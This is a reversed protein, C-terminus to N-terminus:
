PRGHAPDRAKTRNRNHEAKEGGLDIPRPTAASRADRMRAVSHAAETQRHEPFMRAYAPNSGAAAGRLAAAFSAPPEGGLWEVGGGSPAPGFFDDARTEGGPDLARRGSLQPGRALRWGNFAVKAALFALAVTWASYASALGLALAPALDLLRTAIRQLPRAKFQDEEDGDFERVVLVFLGFGALGEGAFALEGGAGLVIAQCVAGFFLGFLAIVIHRALAMPKNAIHRDLGVLLGFVVAAIIQYAM